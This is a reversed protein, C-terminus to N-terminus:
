VASGEEIHAVLRGIAEDWRKSILDLYARAVDLRQPELRWLCERGHRSGRVLGAGELVQLHKTIAQRSVGTGETLGSISV